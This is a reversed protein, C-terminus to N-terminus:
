KINPDGCCFQAVATCTFLEMIMTYFSWFVRLGGREGGFTPWDEQKQQLEIIYDTRFQHMERSTYFLFSKEEASWCRREFEATVVNESFRVHRTGDHKPQSKGDHGETLEHGDVEAISDVAKFADVVGCDDDMIPDNENDLEIEIEIGIGILNKFLVKETQMQTDRDDSETQEDNLNESCDLIDSTHEHSENLPERVPESISTSGFSIDDEDSTADTDTQSPVSDELSEEDNQFADSILARSNYTEHFSDDIEVLDQVIQTKVNGDQAHCSDNNDELVIILETSVETSKSLSGHLEDSRSESSCVHESSALSDRIRLCDMTTTDTECIQEM